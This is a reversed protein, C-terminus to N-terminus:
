AISWAVPKSRRVVLMTTDTLNGAVFKTPDYMWAWQKNYPTIEAKKM